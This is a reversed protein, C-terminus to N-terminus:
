TIAVLAASGGNGPLRVLGFERTGEFGITPVNVIGDDASATTYADSSVIASSSPLGALMPLVLALGVLPSVKLQGM